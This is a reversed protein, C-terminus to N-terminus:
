PDRSAESKTGIVSDDSREVAPIVPNEEEVRRYGPLRDPYQSALTVPDMLESIRVRGVLHGDKTATLTYDCDSEEAWAVDGVVRSEIWSRAKGPETWVTVVPHDDTATRSRAVYVTVEVTDGM